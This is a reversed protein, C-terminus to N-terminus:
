LNDFLKEVHEDDLKTIAYKFTDTDAETDSSAFLYTLFKAMDVSEPIDCLTVPDYLYATKLLTTGYWAKCILHVDEFYELNEVLFEDEVVDNFADILAQRDFDSFTLNNNTVM